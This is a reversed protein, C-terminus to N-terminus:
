DALGCHHMLPEVCRSRSDSPIGRLHLDSVREGYLSSFLNLLIINCIILTTYTISFSKLAVNFSEEIYSIHVVGSIQDVFSNHPM